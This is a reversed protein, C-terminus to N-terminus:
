KYFVILIYIIRMNLAAYNTYEVTHQGIIHPHRDGFTPILEFDSSVVCSIMLPLCIYSFHKTQTQEEVAHETKYINNTTM